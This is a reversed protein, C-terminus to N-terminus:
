NFFEWVRELFVKEFWVPNNTLVVEFGMAKLREHLEQQKKFHEGSLIASEARIGKFECFITKNEGTKANFLLMASDPMGALTGEKKKKAGNWKSSSGNDVQYFVADGLKQSIIRLALKEFALKCNSQIRTELCNRDFRLLNAEDLTLCSKEAKKEIAIIDSNFILPNNQMRTKWLM